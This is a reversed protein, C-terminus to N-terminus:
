RFNITSILLIPTYVCRTCICIHRLRRRLRGGGSNSLEYRIPLYGPLRTGLFTTTYHQLITNYHKLTTTNYYTLITYQTLFLHNSHQFLIAYVSVSTCLYTSLCVALSTSIYVSRYVSGCISYLCVKINYGAVPTNSSDLGSFYKTVAAKQWSPQPYYSSFGGGTTIVGSYPSQSQCAVQLLVTYHHLFLNFISCFPLLLPISVPTM